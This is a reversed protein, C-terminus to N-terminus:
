FLPTYGGSRLVRGPHKLFKESEPFGTQDHQEQEAAQIPLCRCAVGGHRWWHHRLTQPAVM